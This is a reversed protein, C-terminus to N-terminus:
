AVVHALYAGALCLCVTGSGRRLTREPLGSALHVGLLGGLLGGLGACMGLSWDPTSAGPAGADAWVYAVVGVASTVWTCALAAPAVRRLSMGAAALLPAIVAGGGIGYAGGLVGVAAALGLLAPAPLDRDADHSSRLLTLLGLLLLVGAALLHFWVTSGLLHLRLLVGAVVGPVSGTVLLGALRLDFGRGLSRLAGGPAAVVNFLLTTSSARAGPLHLALQFFPMLLVAGSVGVPATLTALGLAAVFAASHLMWDAGM